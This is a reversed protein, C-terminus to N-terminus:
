DCSLVASGAPHCKLCARVNRAALARCASSGAWGPRHPSIGMSRTPDASHCALCSEERHCSVCARLNRKAAFSHSAPRPATLVTGADDRAWGPPHFVKVATGTGFPNSPAHGLQGGEPDAAVGLRQHCGLCFIQNRHCSSCNPINRRADVAHLTAYDVPHFDPQRVVGAGHCDLCESQKHCTACYREDRGGVRHDTRFGVTHADIGRLSGSPVLKGSPFTTRLRGDALTVHCSSCRSTAKRGDHCGLCLSMKPLEATTALAVGDVGAHCSACAVQRDVHLKHNFKLAATQLMVRPPEPTPMGPAAFGTYNRHCADCRVPPTGAAVAKDPRTRDIAHCTRCVAEGPLLSDKAAISRTAEAHCRECSIGRAAHRAHDFILPLASPPYVAPSPAVSSAPASAPAAASARVERPVGGDAATGYRAFVFGLAVLGVALLVGAPRAGVGKRM